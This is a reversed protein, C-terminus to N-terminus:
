TEVLILRLLSQESKRKKIKFAYLNEFITNKYLIYMIYTSYNLELLNEMLSNLNYLNRYLLLLRQHTCM